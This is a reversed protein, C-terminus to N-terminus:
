FIHQTTDLETRSLLTSSLGNYSLTQLPNPKHRHVTGVLRDFVLQIHTIARNMDLNYLSSLEGEM